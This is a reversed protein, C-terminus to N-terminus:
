KKSIDVWEVYQSAEELEEISLKIASNKTGCAPYVYEYDKLSNDLYVDVGDKLGFPCVGGVDHGTKELVEDLKLMKAKKGFTSKYKKNDVKRLGAMVVIITKGDLDFSLSKAIEDECIGFAKAALEVTASSEESIMIREDLGYKKLHNKVKELSM